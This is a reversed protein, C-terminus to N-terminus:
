ERIRKELELRLADNSMYHMEPNVVVGKKNVLVAHPIGSVNFKSTLYNWEDDSVRFHEGKINTIANNYIDLPSTQNTIYVFVVNDRAMAEKLPKIDAIGSRCPGCWTAWFDVLVVKGRYKEMMADFLKDATTKPVENVIYDKKLKNAELKEQAQRNCIGIYEAIFPTTFQKQITQLSNLALPTVNEVIKRTIDQADMIDACFGKQLGLKKQLNENRSAIWQQEYLNSLFSRHAKNFSEVPKEYQKQLKRKEIAIDTKEDVKLSDLLIKEDATFPVNKELLYQEIIAYTIIEERKEKYLDIMQPMYKNNMAMIQDRHKNSFLDLSSKNTSNEEQKIYGVLDKEEETLTYGSQELKEAIEPITYYKTKGRLIESPKLRNIFSGYETSLVAMPNNVIENTIFNFYGATLTDTKVQVAQTNPIKNKARYASEYFSNYDMLLYNYLYEIDLAKVQLGKASVLNNKSFSDLTVMDKQKLSLLYAKYTDPNMDLIKKQMKSYNFSMIKSLKTLDTNIGACEGMYLDKGQDIVVFTEKGPILFVWGNYLKSHVFALHPYYLPLKVSFTGDTAIEVLFNNQKGTLIDDISISATKMGFRPTNGKIYGGFTASDMKFVPAEFPKDDAINKKNVLAVDNCYPTLTKLSEGILYIGKKDSKVFLQIKASKNKLEISGKGKKLYSAGYKWVQQKYIAITDFLSLEWNGTTQNFWNGTLEQPPISNDSSPKMEIDYIFWNGGSNAEGYDVKNVSKAIKPFILKYDVAGSATMVFKGNLPIGDSAVVFLKNTDNLPQIYTQQPIYIWNGPKETTHFYLVTATDAVEIKVINVTRATSLGYRPKEIITQAYVAVSLLLTLLLLNIKKM